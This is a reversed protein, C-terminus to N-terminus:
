ERSKVVGRGKGNEGPTVLLIMREKGRSRAVKCVTTRRKHGRDLPENITLHHQFTCVLIHKASSKHPMATLNVQGLSSDWYSNVKERSVSNLLYRSTFRVTGVEREKM